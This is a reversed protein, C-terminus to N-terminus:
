FRRAGMLTGKIGPLLAWDFQPWDRKWHKAVLREGPRAADDLMVIGGVPVRSFLREAGERITPGLAWPPGDILLLDIQDPVGVLDYWLGSWRGNHAIIPAHRVDATLDHDALWNRVAGVFDGHQDFSVLRGGGALQMAKAVVLTSAGAGLEVVTGPKHALVTDVIRHLLGTDAKWSGLHPLADEPLGLRDLLATKDAKRGGYLSKLLWPWQVAGFSLLRVWDGADRTVGTVDARARAATTNRSTM